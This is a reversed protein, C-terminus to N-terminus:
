VQTIKKKQPVCVCVFYINKVVIFTLVVHLKPGWQSENHVSSFLKRNLLFLFNMCTQFRMLTLLHCFKGKLPIKCGFMFM